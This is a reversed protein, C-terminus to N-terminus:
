AKAKKVVEMVESIAEKAKGKKIADAACTQLHNELILNDSEKLAKQVAQSQHIIDICYKNEEAMKIVKQLHGLSIKLRHVIREQTDKPRYMFTREYGGM